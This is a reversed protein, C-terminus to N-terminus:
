VFNLIMVLLFSGFVVGFIKLSRKITQQLVDESMQEWDMIMRQYREKSGYTFNLIGGVILLGLLGLIKGTSRGTMGGELHGRFYHSLWHSHSFYNFVVFLTALSLLIITASLLTGNIRGKMPDKGMKKLEYYQSCYITEIISM